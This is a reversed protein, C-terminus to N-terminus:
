VLWRDYYFLLWNQFCSFELSGEDYDFSLFPTITFFFVKVVSVTIHFKEGTAKVEEQLHQKSKHQIQHFHIYRNIAFYMQELGTM